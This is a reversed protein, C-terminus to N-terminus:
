TNNMRNSFWMSNTWRNWFRVISVCLNRIRLCNKRLYNMNNQLNMKVNRSLILAIRVGKMRTYVSKVKKMMVLESGGSVDNSEGDLWSLIRPQQEEDM